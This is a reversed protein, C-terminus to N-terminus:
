SWKMPLLWRTIRMKDHKVRPNIFNGKKDLPANGQAIMRDEEEEAALYIVEDNKINVM